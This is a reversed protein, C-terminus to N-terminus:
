QALGYYYYYESPSASPSPVPSPSPTPSPIPTPTPTPPIPTNCYSFLDGCLFQYGAYINFCPICNFPAFSAFDNSRKFLSPSEFPNSVFRNNLPNSKEEYYVGCTCNPPGCLMEISQYWTGCKVCPISTNAITNCTLNCMVNTLNRIFSCEICVGVQVPFNQRCMMIALNKLTRCSVCWEANSGAVLRQISHEVNKIKYYNDPESYYGYLTDIQEFIKSSDLSLGEEQILSPLILNFFLNLIEKKTLYDMEEYHALDQQLEEESKFLLNMVELTILERKEDDSIYTRIITHIDEISLAYTKDEPSQLYLDKLQNFSEVHQQQQQPQHETPTSKKASVCSLHFSCFLVLFAVLISFRAM